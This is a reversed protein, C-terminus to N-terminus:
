FYRMYQRLFFIVTDSQYLLHYTNSFTVNCLSAPKKSQINTHSNAPMDCAEFMRPEFCLAASSWRDPRQNKRIPETRGTFTKKSYLGIRVYCATRRGHRALGYCLVATELRGHRATAKLLVAHDSCPMPMPMAHCTHILCPRVTYILHSVCELGKADRCPRPM